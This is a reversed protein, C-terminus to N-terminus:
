ITQLVVRSVKVDDVNLKFKQLSAGRIPEPNINWTPVDGDKIGEKITREWNGMGDGEAAAAKKEKKAAPAPVPMSPLAPLSFNAFPNGGGSKPAADEEDDDEFDMSLDVTQDITKFRDGISAGFSAFPNGGDPLTAV